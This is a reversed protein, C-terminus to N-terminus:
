PERRLLEAPSPSGHLARSYSGFKGAIEVVGRNARGAHFLADEDTLMEFGAGRAAGLKLTETLKRHHQGANGFGIRRRIEGNADFNSDRL